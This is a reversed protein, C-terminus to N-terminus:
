DVSVKIKKPYLAEAWFSFEQAVKLAVGTLGLYDSATMNSDTLKDIRSIGGLPNPTEGAFALEGLTQFFCEVVAQKQRENSLAPVEGALRLLGWTAVFSYLEVAQSKQKEHDKLESTRDKVRKLNTYVKTSITRPDYNTM